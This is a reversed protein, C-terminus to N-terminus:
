LPKRELLAFSANEFLPQFNETLMNDGGPSSATLLESWPLQNKQVVLFQESRFTSDPIKYDASFHIRRFQKLPLRSAIQIRIVYNEDAIVGISGSRYAGPLHEGVAIADRVTADICKAADKYVAVGVSPMSLQVLPMAFLSAAVISRGWESPIGNFIKVLGVGGAVTLFLGFTLVYRWNWWWEDIGVYGELAAALIFLMPLIFFVLLLTTNRDAKTHRLLTLGAAAVILLVPGFITLIARGFTVVINFPLHQSSERYVDSITSYTGRTFKMPDGFKIAHSLFWIAMGAFCVAILAAIRTTDWKKADRVKLISVFIVFPALPWAEYRCLTALMVAAACSFLWSVSDTTLWRHLAYGAFTVFFILSPEDMPTLSMYVINPNLGYLSAALFAVPTSGTINRVLLFLLIGTGVLCPIGVFFGAIGSFFLSDISAFPLLLFHPLPLWVTGIIPIEHPQSDTFERAKIIHSAADGFYYLSYKDYHHLVVGSTCSVIFLLVALLYQEKGQIM